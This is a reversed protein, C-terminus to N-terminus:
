KVRMLRAANGCTVAGGIRAEWKFVICFGASYPDQQMTVAKRTVLTYAAKWNGFAVPVAGPACDPMQTVVIVPSGNVVFQGPETPLAMM